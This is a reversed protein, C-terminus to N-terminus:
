FPLKPAGPNETSPLGGVGRRARTRHKEIKEEPTLLHADLQERSLKGVPHSPAFMEGKHNLGLPMDHIPSFNLNITVFKPARRGLEPGGPMDTTTGWISQDYQLSLNTIVGALGAGGAHEFGRVIANSEPSLFTTTVGAADLSEELDDKIEEIQKILDELIPTEEEIFKEREETPTEEGEEQPFAKKAMRNIITSVNVKGDKVAALATSPQGLAPDIVFKKSAKVPFFMEIAPAPGFPPPPLPFEQAKRFAALLPVGGLAMADIEDTLMDAVDYKYSVVPNEDDNSGEQVLQSQYDPKPFQVPYQIEFVFYKKDVKVYAPCGKRYLIKEFQLPTLLPLYM